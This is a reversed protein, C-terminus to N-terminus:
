IQIQKICLLPLHDSGRLALRDPIVTLLLIDFLFLRRTREIRRERKTVGTGAGKGFPSARAIKLGRM